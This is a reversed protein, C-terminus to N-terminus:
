GRVGRVEGLGLGTAAMSWAGFIVIPIFTAFHYAVAYSFAQDGPVGYLALSAKIGAEFVGVYGPTSPVAIGFAVISQLLMAGAFNVHIGFAAFSVYFAAANALWIVMSWAVVGALRSPSALVSLGHRVGEVLQVLRDAVKPLPVMVRILREARLPWLVVGLAAALALGSVIGARTAVTAIPLGAITAGAPFGPMLLALAMLLVLTIGDFVREVAVSSVSATFRCGTLRTAVWCRVFEGARFPLVNNAMFGMAVAHWLPAAPLTSGDSARLLLKWRIVRLPFPLTALVVGLVIPWPDARRLHGAVDALSVGKLSWWLLLASV